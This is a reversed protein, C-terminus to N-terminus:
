VAEALISSVTITPTGVNSELYFYNPVFGFSDMGSFNSKDLVMDIPPSVPKQLSGYVNVSGDIVSLASDEREVGRGSNKIYYLTDVNLEKQYIEINDPVAM